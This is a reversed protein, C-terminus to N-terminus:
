SLWTPTRKKAAVNTRLLDLKVANNTMLASWRAETKDKRQAARTKADAICHEIPEHLRATAPATDKVSKARKNGDPPGDAAGPM